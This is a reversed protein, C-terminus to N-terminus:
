FKVRFGIMCIDDVQELDGKWALYSNLIATRQEHVSLESIMNVLRRLKRAGYKKVKLNKDSHDESGFQDTIGDTFIYVMDDQQLELHHTTYNIAKEFFGVPQKDGDLEIIEGNRQIWISNHAGAFELSVSKSVPNAKLSILAADMGDNITHESDKLGELLLEKTKDLIEGPNKKNFDIVSRNLCNLCMVSMMAGPVGHGTCDGVLLYFQNNESKDEHFWYFDGAVIDKPIYLVFFQPLFKEIRDSPPLIASQIRRAYRISDKMERNSEELLRHQFEIQEKQKLIDKSFYDNTRKLHYILYLGGLFILVINFSYVIMNDEKSRVIMPEIWLYAFEAAFFAGLSLLFLIFSTRASKIMTFGLVAIELLYFRGTGGKIVLSVVLIHLMLLLCLLIAATEHKSRVSFFYLTGTFITLLINQYLPEHSGISVYMPVYSFGLCISIFIMRNTMQAHRM